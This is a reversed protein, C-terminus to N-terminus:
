RRLKSVDIELGDAEILAGGRNAADQDVLITLNLCEPSRKATVGTAFGRRKEPPKRHLEQVDDEIGHQM